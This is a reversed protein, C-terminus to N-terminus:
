SQAQKAKKEVTKAAENKKEEAQKKIDEELETFRATIEEVFESMTGKLDNVRGEINENIEDGMQKTKKKINKRTKSGKEPAFLIGTVAGAAAGALFALVSNSGSKSM